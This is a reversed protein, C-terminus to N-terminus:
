AAAATRGAPDGHRNLFRNWSGVMWALGIAGFLAMAAFSFTLIWQGRMHDELVVQDRGPLVRIAVTEQVPRAELDKLFTMPMEVSREQVAEGELQYRLTVHGRSIESRERTEIEVIEAIISQGTNAIQRQELGARFLVVSITLLLVPLAWLLLAVIRNSLFNM